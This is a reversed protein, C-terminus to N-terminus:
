RAGGYSLLRVQQVSDDGELLSDSLYFRGDRYVTHGAMAEYELPQATKGFTVVTKPKGGKAGIRVIRGPTKLGARVYAILSKGEVALPRVSWTDVPKSAWKVKGKDLDFAVIQNPGLADEKLPKSSLYFTDKGVVGGVCNQTGRGSDGAGECQDFKYKGANLTSRLKGNSKLSVVSWNFQDESEFVSFVPPDVSYVKGIRWPMTKKTKRDKLQYRWKIKGSKPDVQRIQGHSINNKGPCWDVVLLKSGGAVDDPSCGGTKEEGLRFLKKGDKIRYAEASMSRGVLVTDGSIALHVTITNDGNKKEDLKKRWGGAGKKLDIMQLGNCKGREKTPHDRYAVVVKGDPTPNVPVDCVPAPLPLSWLKSGDSTKFATVEKYFAQVVTDEGVFWPEHVLTNGDPLDQESKAYWAKAEGKELGANIDKPLPPGTPKADPSASVTPKKSAGAETRGKGDGKDEGSMAYVGSGVLLLAALASGAVILTRREWRPLRTSLPRKPRANSHSFQSLPQADPSRRPPEPPQNM